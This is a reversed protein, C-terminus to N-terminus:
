CRPASPPASWGSRRSACTPWARRTSSIAHPIRRRRRRRRRAQRGGAGTGAVGRTQPPRVRLVNGSGRNADPPSPDLPIWVETDGRSIGLSAVPLQFTPPMVGSITYSASTSRSPAASSRAGAASAGGCPRELHRREHRRRVVPRPATSRAAARPGADGGRRPRIAARWAGDPPIPRRPVLRVRRLEHDAAPLGAARPGVDVNFTGPSTTNVRTCRCSASATRTRCRGCCCATSSPSSRPPRASGSPLRSWQSCRSAPRRKGPPGPKPSPRCCTATIRARTRSRGSRSRFTTRIWDGRGNENPGNRTM